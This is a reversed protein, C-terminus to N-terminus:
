RSVTRNSNPSQGAHHCGGPQDTDCVPQCTYSLLQVFPDFPVPHSKVRVVGHPVGTHGQGWDCQVQRNWDVDDSRIFGPTWCHSGVFSNDGQSLLYLVLPSAISGELLTIERHFYICCWLALM